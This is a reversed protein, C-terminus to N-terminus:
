AAGAGTSGGEGTAPAAPPAVWARGSYYFLVVIMLTPVLQVISAAVDRLGELGGGFILVPLVIIGVCGAALSRWWTEPVRERADGAAAALALCLLLYFGFQPLNAAWGLSDDADDIARLVDPVWLPVSVLAALLGLWLMPTRLPFAAPLARVGVLVLVWGLPNPLPDWTITVPGLLLVVIGMAIAQLPKVPM